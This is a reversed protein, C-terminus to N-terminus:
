ARRWRPAFNRSPNPNPSPPKRGDVHGERAGGGGRGVIQDARRIRRPHRARGTPDSPANARENEADCREQVRRAARGHDQRPQRPHAQSRARVRPSEADDLVGSGQARRRPTQRSRAPPHPPPRRGRKPHEQVPPRRLRLYHKCVDRDRWHRDLNKREELPVDRESGMLQDLMEAM